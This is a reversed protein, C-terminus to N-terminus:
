SPIYSICFIYWKFYLKFFVHKLLEKLKCINQGIKQSSTQQNKDNLTKLSNDEDVNYDCHKRTIHAWTFIMGLLLLEYHYLFM